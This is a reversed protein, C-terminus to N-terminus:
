PAAGPFLSIIRYIVWSGAVALLFGEFFTRKRSVSFCLLTLGAVLVTQILDRIM